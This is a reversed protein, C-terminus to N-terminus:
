EANGGRRKLDWEMLDNIVKKNNESKLSQFTKQQSIKPPNSRKLWNKIFAVWGMKTRPKGKPDHSNWFIADEIEQKLWNHDPYRIAWEQKYGDPIVELLESINAVSFTPEKPKKQKSPKKADETKLPQQEEEKNEKIKNEKIKNKNSVNSPFKTSYKGLYKSLNPIDFEVFSESFTAVFLGSEQLKEVVKKCSQTQKRWVNRLSQQHIRIPNKFGDECKKALLELLIFYYAYGEFGLLDIAKQIKEDESANNYHRFYNKKGSAM